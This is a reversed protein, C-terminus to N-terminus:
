LQLTKLNKLIEEESADFRLNIIAHKMVAEAKEQPHQGLFMLEFGKAAQYILMNEGSVTQCNKKEANCLFINNYHDGYVIDMFIKQQDPYFSFPIIEAGGTKPPSITNVIADCDHMLTKINGSLQGREDYLPYAHLRKNRIKSAMVRKVLEEAKSFTRNAINVEAGASLASTAIACGAGGTGLVLIRKGNFSKVGAEKEMARLAGYGDTTYAEPKHISNVFTNMGGNIKVEEDVSAGIQESLSKVAEKYPITVNFGRLKPDKIASTFFFELKTKDPIDCPIYEADINFFRFVSNWMIRSKSYTSPNEGILGVVNAHRSNRIKMLVSDVM